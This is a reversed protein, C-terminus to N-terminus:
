GREVINEKSSQTISSKSKTRNHRVQCSVIYMVAFFFFFNFYNHLKNCNEYFSLNSLFLSVQVQNISVEESTVSLKQDADRSRCDAQKSSSYIDVDEAKKSSKLEGQKLDKTQTTTGQDECIFQQDCVSNIHLEVLAQDTQIQHSATPTGRGRSHQMDATAGSDCHLCGLLDSKSDLMPAEPGTKLINIFESGHNQEGTSLINHSESVTRVSAPSPGPETKGFNMDQNSISGELGKNEVQPLSSQLGVPCCPSDSLADDKDEVSFSPSHDSHNTRHGDTATPIDVAAALGCIDVGSDFKPISPPISDFSTQDNYTLALSPSPKGVKRECEDVRVVSSNSVSLSSAVDEMINGSSIQSTIKSHSVYIEQGCVSVDYDSPKSATCLTKKDLKDRETVTDKKRRARNGSCKKNKMHFVEVLGDREEGVGASIVNVLRQHKDPDTWSGTSSLSATDSPTENQQRSNLVPETPTTSHQKTGNSSVSDVPFGSDASITSMKMHNATDSNLQADLSALSASDSDSQRRFSSDSWSSCVQLSM